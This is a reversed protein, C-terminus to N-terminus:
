VGKGGKKIAIGGSKDPNGPFLYVPAKKTVGRGGADHMELKRAAGDGAWSFALSEGGQSLFPRARAEHASTAENM